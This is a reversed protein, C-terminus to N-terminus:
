KRPRKTNTRVWLLVDEWHPTVAKRRRKQPQPAEDPHQLFDGTAFFPLPTLSNRRYLVCIASPTIQPVIEHTPASVLSVLIIFLWQQTQM